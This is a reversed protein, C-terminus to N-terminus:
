NVGPAWPYSSPSSLFKLNEQVLQPTLLPLSTAYILRNGFQTELSARHPSSQGLEMILKLFVSHIDKSLVLTYVNKAM